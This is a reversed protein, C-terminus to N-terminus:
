LYKNTKKSGIKTRLEVTGALHKALVRWSLNIKRVLLWGPLAGNLQLPWDTLFIEIGRWLENRRHRTMVIVM